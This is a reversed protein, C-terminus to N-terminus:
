GWGWFYLNGRLRGQLPGLGLGLLECFSPLHGHTLRGWSAAKRGMEETNGALCDLLLVIPRCTSVEETGTCHCFLLPVFCKSRLESLRPELGSCLSCWLHVGHVQTLQESSLM